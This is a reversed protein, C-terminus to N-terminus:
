NPKELADAAGRLGDALKKLWARHGEDGDFEAVLGDVMLQLPVFKDAGSGWDGAPNTLAAIGVADGRASLEIVLTQMDKASQQEVAAWWEPSERMDAEVQRHYEALAAAGILAQLASDIEHKDM